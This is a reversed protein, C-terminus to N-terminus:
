SIIRTRRQLYDHLVFRDLDKGASFFVRGQTSEAMRYAFRIDEQSQNWSDLLFINITIGAKACMQAERLTAAETRPDPPYLLYLVEGEFHATPLGDTIIVMQRNPTDQTNLFQRGLQMARQINTFHPPIMAETVNPDSLDAKLHVRWDHITVPKPMLSPLESVHRPRPLSYIEIFQLFDGPFERRILGDLAIGMRKVNMYQGDYRMSGSMDLLVATACKPNNRTHHIVMDESKMRVPLGPGSRLLANVMSAPIDLHAVSDGFEYGKTRSMEVAGDGSIPGQHRGSRAAQLEQFIEKLLNGQFIRMAQPTLQYNRGRQELGQREALERLYNQVMQQLEDLKQVDAAPAFQSLLDMDILAIQATKAAEKLQELLKDIAELEAKIELAEPVTMEQRGTFPYKADLEEVQYLDGLSSSLQLLGRAFAGREDGAEYWIQELERLQEQAVARKYRKGLNKPPHLQNSLAQFQQRAREIARHTEYTELIKRKREELMAILSDLSPGLGAIQSPDLRVARALEEETLERFDGYRLFHEFAPSVLDPPEQTPSPFNKPDYGLYTHIVGGLPRRPTM